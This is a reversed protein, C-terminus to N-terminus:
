VRAGLILIRIRGTRYITTRHPGTYGTHGTRHITLGMGNPDWQTRNPGIPDNTMGTTKALNNSNPDGILYV